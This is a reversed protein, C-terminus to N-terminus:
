FTLCLNFDDNDRVFIVEPRKSIIIVKSKVIRINISLHPLAQNIVDNSNFNKCLTQRGIM